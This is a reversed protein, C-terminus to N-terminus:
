DSANADDREADLNSTERRLTDLDFEGLRAHEGYLHEEVYPRVNHEWVLRLMEENLGDKMFYSPGIAAQQDDLKENARDVIDAVWSMAPTNQKLWRRLLGQVPPTDPHFEVFHFRRRLALDVLAISRDATNMTGIIYLNKPFSFPKDVYLLRMEEDRYELLFYLEGLVKSLNGRNIEDIVLFHDAEPEERAKKAAELLPGNKLEFGPQGSVPAPRYGQVFDEYAYSPHFQVLWVREKSGSLCNALERAVFTKGTGPPGQFIVQRKDDLLKEIKQLSDVDFLLKGALARLDGPEPVPLGDRPVKPSDVQAMLTKRLDAWDDALTDRGSAGGHASNGLKVILRQHYSKCAEDAAVLEAAGSTDTDGTFEAIASDVLAIRDARSIGKWRPAGSRRKRPEIGEITFANGDEPDIVLHRKVTNILQHIVPSQGKWHDKVPKDYFSFNESYKPALSERIQQLQRDIDDTPEKVLDAFTDAIKKKDNVSITAEFTDPFVLHLIAERQMSEREKEDSFLRSRFTIKNLFNKFEWPKDLLLLCEDNEKWQEVFEIIFGVQRYKSNYGQGTRVLGPVLSDVLDLPIEVPSPSWRLVTDIVNQERNSNKTSVILFHVYLIEGM